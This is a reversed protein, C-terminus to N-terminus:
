ETPPHRRSGPPPLPPIRNRHSGHADQTGRKATRRHHLQPARQNAGSRFGPRGGGIKQLCLRPETADPPQTRAGVRRRPQDTRRAQPRRSAYEAVCIYVRCNGKAPQPRRRGSRSHGSRQGSVIARAQSTGSVGGTEALLADLTSPTIVQDTVLLEGLTPPTLRPKQAEELEAILTDLSYEKLGGQRVDELMIGLQDRAVLLADMCRRDLQAEGRRAANLVDEARHSLRVVPDFGLFGSTGKITHMARFIRNLLEGDGPTSELAVMDQDMGQLLEESEVLFDRILAPDQSLDDNSNMM